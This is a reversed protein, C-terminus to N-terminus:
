RGGQKGNQTASVDQMEPVGTIPNIHVIRRRGKLNALEISLGLVAGGPYFIFRRTATESEEVAPRVALIRVSDPLDLTRDSGPETSLMRLQRKAPDVAVEVVQQRRSARNMAQNLFSAVSDCASVLRISDLGSSVSPYTIGVVLAIITVVLLMEILTVGRRRSRLVAPSGKQLATRLQEEM